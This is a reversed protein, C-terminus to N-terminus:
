PTGARDAGGGFGTIQKWSRTANSAFIMVLDGAGAMDLAAAVATEQEPITTICEAAVGAALLGDRLLGPVEDPGRGRLDDGRTCIYHDFAGAAARGVEAFHANRRNGQSCLVCLRRSKTELQEVLRRMAGVGQANHAYDLIVKFPHGDFFNMRGPAQAFTCEFTGLGNRIDDPSAGLGYAIATAFLANQVNHTALGDLAAPIRNAPVVPTDVGDDHITITPGDGGQALVVARGGAGIHKGVLPHAADMTVYCLHRAKTHDAMALCLADDANLVATDQAAQVVVRKVEAMQELTEVGEMGIHDDEVNLVAGVDCVPYGLGSRILGGRAAELVAMDVRPDRVIVRAGTAGAWDGAAVLDGGVYVGDTTSLGVTHGCAKLIHAVMRCTTTKGNTGTVAAIPFHSPTGPPFLMDLIPGVVDPSEGEAVWHARLGPTINVECIAGGVDRYSRSIDPTLFDVGAVDLGLAEVARVAMDRNDPHVRATMDVATGGTSINATRRLPVTEGKEPVTKGTYGKEALMRKTEADKELRVLLNAFGIGRRPDRNVEDVLEEITHVGDGVVHAPVRKVVAILEGDVVLMRHDDGEVFGEVVVRPDYKHAQAFAASVGEADTLGISIAIGKMGSNPKVVVPYGIDRAARVAERANRVERQRPVPLCLGALLINTLAKERSFVTGIYGTGSTVSEHILKQFRGYGLQVYRRRPNLRFWPIGRDEAANVLALTTQDLAQAKAFRIFGDLHAAFDYDPSVGAEPRLESPLLHHVLALALRGAALGVPVEKHEYVVEYVGPSGGARTTGFGVDAGALRQAELAARELIHAPSTGADERLRRVFDGPTGDGGGHRDLGPLCDLLGDIFAAGLRGAPWDEPVGLDVTHRIVPCLAYVSPGRYVATATVKM